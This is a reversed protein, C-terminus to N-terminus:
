GGSIDWADYRLANVKIQRIAYPDTVVRDHKDLILWGDHEQILDALEDIAEPEPDVVFESEFVAKLGLVYRGDDVKQPDDFADDFVFRVADVACYRGKEEFWSCITVFGTVKRAEIVAEYILALTEDALMLRNAINGVFLIGM